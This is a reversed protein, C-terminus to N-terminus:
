RVVYARRLVAVVLSPREVAPTLRQAKKRASSVDRAEVVFGDGGDVDIAVFKRMRRRDVAM